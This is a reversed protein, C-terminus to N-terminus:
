WQWSTMRARELDEPTDIEMWPLDGVDVMTVATGAAALDGFGDEYYLTPDRGWVGGLARELVGVASGAVRALGVYEGDARPDIEKSIVQLLGREDFKAKMEERGLQKARDVALTIPSPPASALRVLVEPTFLTDGNVVFVSERLGELGLALSFANNRSSHHANEVLALSVGHTEELRGLARSLTDASHGAVIRARRTGVKALSHLAIDLISRGGGIELLPKPIQETVGGLRSGRGACLLIAMDIHQREVDTVTCSRLLVM